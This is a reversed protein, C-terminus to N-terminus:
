HWRGKWGLLVASKAQRAAVAQKSKYPHMQRVGASVPSYMEAPTEKAPRKRAPTEFSLEASRKVGASSPVSKTTELPSIQPVTVRPAPKLATGDEKTATKSTTDHKINALADSLEQKQEETILLNSQLDCVSAISDYWRISQSPPSGESMFYCFVCRRRGNTSGDQPVRPSYHRRFLGNAGNGDEAGRFRSDKALSKVLTTTDLTHPSLGNTHNIIRIWDYATIWSDRYLPAISVREFADAIVKCKPKPGVM